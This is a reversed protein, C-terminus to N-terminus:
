YVTISNIITIIPVIDLSVNRMSYENNRFIPVFTTSFFVVHDNFFIIHMLVHNVQM